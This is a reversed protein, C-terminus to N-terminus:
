WWGRPRLGSFTPSLPSPKFSVTSTPQRSRVDSPCPSCASAVAPRMWTCGCSGFSVATTAGSSTEDAGTVPNVTFAVGSTVAPVMRQILVGISTTDEGIEHNRGYAVAQASRRCALAAEVLENRCVSLKTEHIGAFSHGAGDEGIGSSRV